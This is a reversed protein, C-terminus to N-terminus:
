DPWHSKKQLKERFAKTQLTQATEQMEGFGFAKKFVCSFCFKGETKKKLSNEELFLLSTLDTDQCAEYEPKAKEFKSPAEYLVSTENGLSTSSFLLLSFLLVRM